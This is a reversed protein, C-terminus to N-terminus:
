QPAPVVVEAEKLYDKVLEVKNVKGMQNRPIHEVLKFLSPVSYSAFKTECWKNLEKTIERDQKTAEEANTNETKKENRYQVLAVIKQGHVDDPIGVVACDEIAPHELLKTEMELASIKYGSTKIIDVSNRGLIKFSNKIPDYSVSDGTVFWGDNFEKKTEEPKNWYETFVGPGKVLLTGVVETEDAASGSGGKIEVTNSEKSDEPSWYGKEFDGRAELLVDNVNEPRAIRIEVAPLPFGIYGPLRQRVTDEKLTNSIAMGIETMGYRELLKHGTIDKWRNFITQPLPASGSVMLRIKNQCHTKIYDAMQANKSFLKDYEQILYNYSTPVGMYISIRDKQPMNVNLLYSWVNDSQFKPLMIVKAGANLQLLLANIVGHVHHLPLSHLITDAATINWASTLSKMQAELNSYSFVVGKPNNTTGSTYLIMAPSKKYFEGDPIGDILSTDDNVQIAKTEDNIFQQHEITIMTKSLKEAIPKLKEEYQPTTIILDAKSDKLFYELLETPHLTSLPVAIQGSMWSAWQSMLWNSDNPCLFAVRSHSGSGCLTSIQSALKKSGHFLDSYTFEGNQDKLAVKQNYLLAKKFVPVILNQSIEDNFLNQLKSDAPITTKNSSNDSSNTAAANTSSLRSLVVRGIKSTFHSKLQLKLM